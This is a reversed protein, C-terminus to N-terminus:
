YTELGEYESKTILVTLYYNLTEKQQLAIPYLAFTNLLSTSKLSLSKM